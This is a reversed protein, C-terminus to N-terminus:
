CARILSKRREVKVPVGAPDGSGALLLACERRFFLKPSLPGHLLVKDLTQGDCVFTDTGARWFCNPTKEAGSKKIFTSDSRTGTLIDM